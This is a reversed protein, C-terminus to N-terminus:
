IWVRRDRGTSTALLLAGLIATNKLFMVIQTKQSFDGHFILTAPLLFVILAIAGWRARYGLMVSLGGGILLLGAGIHFLTVFPMGAALMEQQYMEWQVFKDFGAITPYAGFFFRGAACAYTNM